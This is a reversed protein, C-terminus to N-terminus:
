AAGLTLVKTGKMKDITLAPKDRTSRQVGRLFLRLYAEECSSVATQVAAPSGVAM